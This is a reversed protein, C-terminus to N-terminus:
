EGPVQLMKIESGTARAVWTTDISQFADRRSTHNKRVRVGSHIAVFDDNETAHMSVYVGPLKSSVAFRAAAKLNLAADSSPRDSSRQAGVCVVPIKLGYLSFSLAASVYALTDTGLMVVVGDAMTGSEKGPVMERATKKVIHESLKQWHEPTLNESYTSFVVEPEISAIAGLEPYQRICIRPPSHPTFLERGTTSEAQM